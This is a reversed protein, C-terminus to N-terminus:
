VGDHGIKTGRERLMAELKAVTAADDDPDADAGPRVSKPNLRKKCCGLLRIITVMPMDCIKRIQEM